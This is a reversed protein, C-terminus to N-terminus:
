LDFKAYFEPHELRQEQRFREFEVDTRKLYEDVM